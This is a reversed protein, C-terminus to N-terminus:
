IRAARNIREIRERNNAIDSELVFARATGGSAANGVAQISSANLATSAIAPALPAAATLNGSPVSGGGGGGGGPVNVRMINRVAGIGSAVITAVNAIKAIVDFPSPLVSKQKLAETVGQYTNITATAIGLAKGAATQQGVIQGLAQTANGVAQLSGVRQDDTMKEYAAKSAADELEKKTADASTKIRADAIKHLNGINVELSKKHDEKKKEEVLKDLDDYQRQRAQHNKQIEDWKALRAQEAKEERENRKRLYEEHQAARKQQEEKEMSTIQSETKKGIKARKAAADEAAIIMADIQSLKEKDVNQMAMLEMRAAKLSELSGEQILAILEKRAGLEMAISEMTLQAKLRNYEVVKDLEEKEIKAALKLAEIRERIPVNADGAIERAEQLKRNSEALAIAQNREADELDDLAETIQGFKEAAGESAIGVKELVWIVGSTLLEVIKTFGEILPTLIKNLFTNFVGSLAGWAKGLSDSVGEMKKFHSFLGIILAALTTVVLVIPNAKLVNLAANLMGSGKAAEMAAPGVGALSGKLKDFSGGGAKKVEDGLGAVAKKTNGIQQAANGTDVSVRAKIDVDAM